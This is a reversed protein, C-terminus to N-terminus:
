ARRAKEWRAMEERLEEREEAGPAALIREAFEVLRLLRPGMLYRQLRDDSLLDCLVPVLFAPFKAGSNIRSTYANIMAESVPRGTRCSLGVSLWERDQVLAALRENILAALLERYKRDADALGDGTNIRYRM